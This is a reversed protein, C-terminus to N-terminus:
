FLILRLSSLPSSPSAMSGNTELRGGFTPARSQPASIRTPPLSDKKGRSISTLSLHYMLFNEKFVIPTRLVQCTLFSTPGEGNWSGFPVAAEWQRGWIFDFGRSDWEGFPVAAGRGGETAM